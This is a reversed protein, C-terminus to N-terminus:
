HQSSSDASQLNKRHTRWSFWLMALVVPIVAIAVLNGQFLQFFWFRVQNGGDTFSSIMQGSTGLNMGAAIAQKTFVPAMKSAILLFTAILPIASLVARIVNGRMVLVTLSMVSILNPLDGLPLVRNGPLIFAILLSLPVLILGTAIVSTNTMLIGTDMAISLGKMNTFKREVLLKFALSIESMGEGILGGCRPLLFMVAAVNVSTELTQKLAYGALLSLFLGVLFGMVMPEQLLKPGSDTSKARSPDWNLKKLVPVSDFLKDMLVAYPLFGAVTVPSIAIGDMGTERKVYPASWETVTINYIASILAAALGFFINSTVSMVLVGTLAFHWYNWLDIYLTKTTRTMLMVLNLVMILPIVIPTLTSSWTIIALPAYGVDVVPYNLGRLAIIAKIAPSIQAVFFNFVVFVGAFGAGIRITALLARKVPMRAVLALILMFVPLIVYAKFTFFTALAGSLTGTITEMLFIYM